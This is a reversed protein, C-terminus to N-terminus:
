NSRFTKRREKGINKLLKELLNNKKQQKGTM